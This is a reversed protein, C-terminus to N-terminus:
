RGRRTNKRPPPLPLRSRGGASSTPWCALVAVSIIAILYWGVLSM